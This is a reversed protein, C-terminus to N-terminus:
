EVDADASTFHKTSFIRRDRFFPTRRVLPATLGSPHCLRRSDPILSWRSLRRVSFNIGIKSYRHVLHPCTVSNSALGPAALGFHALHPEPAVSFSSELKAAWLARGDFRHALQGSPVQGM